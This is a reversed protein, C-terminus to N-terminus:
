WVEFEIQEQLQEEVADDIFMVQEQTLLQPEQYTGVIVFMIEDKLILIADRTRTTEYYAYRFSFVQGKQWLQTCKQKLLTIDEESHLIYSYEIHYHLYERIPITKHLSITEKFMSPYLTLEKGQDNAKLTEKPIVGKPTLYNSGIGGSPLLHAGDSTILGNKYSEGNEGRYEITNKGYLMDRSIKLFYAHITAGDLEFTIQRPM